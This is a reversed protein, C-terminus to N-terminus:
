RSPSLTLFRVSFFRDSQGASRIWRSRATSRPSVSTGAPSPKAITRAKGCPCTDAASPVARRIPSSGRILDPPRSGRRGSRRRFSASASITARSISGAALSAVARASSAVVAIWESPAVRPSPATVAL